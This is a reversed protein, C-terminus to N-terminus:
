GNGRPTAPRKSRTHFRGAGRARCRFIAPHHSSTAFMRIIYNKSASCIPCTSEMSNCLPLQAHFTRKSRTHFQGAVREGRRSIAHCHSSTVSKRIIYNEPPPPTHCPLEMNFCLPLQAHFTRAPFPPLHSNPRFNPMLFYFHFSEIQISFRQVQGRSGFGTLCRRGGRRCPAVPALHLPAMAGCIASPPLLPPGWVAADPTFHQRAQV